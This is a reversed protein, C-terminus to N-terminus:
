LHEGLAHPINKLNIERDQHLLLVHLDDALPLLDM